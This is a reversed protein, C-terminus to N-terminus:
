TEGVIASSSTNVDDSGSLSLNANMPSRYWEGNKVNKPAWTCIVGTFTESKNVGKLRDVNEHLRGYMAEKSCKSKPYAGAGEKLLCWIYMSGYLKKTNMAGAGM